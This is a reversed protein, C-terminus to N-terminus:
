SELVDLTNLRRLRPQFPCGYETVFGYEIEAYPVKGDALLKEYAQVFAVSTASVKATVKGRKILFAGKAKGAEHGVIELKEETLRKIKFEGHRNKLVLGEINFKCVFKWGDDFTRFRKPLRLHKFDKLCLLRELIQRIERPHAGHVDKKRDRFVDFIYFRAKPWNEKKNVDLVNGRPVAIEGRVEWDLAELESLVHPFRDNRVIDRDSIMDHGNYTMRTGDIKSEWLGTYQKAQETELTKM